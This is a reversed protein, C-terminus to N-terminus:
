GCLALRQLLEVFLQGGVPLLQVFLRPCLVSCKVASSARSAASMWCAARAFDFAAAFLHVLGAGRQFLEALLKASM